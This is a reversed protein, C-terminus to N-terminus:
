NIKAMEAAMTLADLELEPVTRRKSLKVRSTLLQSSNTSVVYAVAGYALLSADCFIHLQSSGHIVNRPIKISFLHQIDSLQKRVNDDIDPPIAEDWDLNRKWLERLLLRLQITAPAIIGLPDYISSILSSIKRKTLTKLDIVEDSLPSLSLTDERINWRYGLVSLEDPADGAWEQDLISNNSRWKRINMNAFSFLEKIRNHYNRIVEISTESTAYLWDDVYMNNQLLPVVDQYQERYLKLHKQIAAFLLFRSASTGFPVSHFRYAVLDGNEGWWLFRLADRDSPEVGVRLFAQEIDATMGTEGFRFSMFLKLSNWNTLGKFLNENLSYSGPVHASGDFVVRIKTTQREPRIVAHHPLYFVTGVPISPAVETSSDIMKGIAENYVDYFKRQKLSKTLRYLRNRALEKTDALTITQIWPLCVSYRNDRFKVKNEIFEDLFQSEEKGFETDWSNNGSPVESEVQLFYSGVTETCISQPSEVGSVVWGFVSLRISLGNKIDQETTRWLKNYYELGIIIEVPGTDM